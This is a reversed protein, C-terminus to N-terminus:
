DNAAVRYSGDTHHHYRDKGWRLVHIRVHATGPKVMKLRRAAGYSLDIIRGKPLPGRDTIRVVVSRGNHSNVVRVKTGLPLEPHFETTAATMAYMDYVEGNATLHGNFSPGYWSAVGRIWEGDSGMPAASIQDSVEEVHPVRPGVTFQPFTIKTTPPAEAPLFLARAQSATGAAMAVALGLLAVICLSGFFPVGSPLGTKLDNIKQPKDM